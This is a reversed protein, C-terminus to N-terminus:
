AYEWTCEKRDHEGRHMCPAFKEGATVKDRTGDHQTCKVTGTVPVTRGPKYTQGM